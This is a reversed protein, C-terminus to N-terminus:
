PVWMDECIEVFLNLGPVDPVPIIQRPWIWADRGALRVLEHDADAGPAYWRSEDFERYTPLHQKATIGLIEGRHITIACNLVRSRHRPRLPAGVVIVPLLERSAEVLTGLADDAADLLPEQMVLDGLSYGTLSLEPFVAVGVQQDHLEQLQELHRQVNTAPDALAVPLTVAAVRVYGHDYISAHPDAAQQGVPLHAEGPPPSPQHEPPQGAAHQDDDARRDTARPPRGHQDASGTASSM